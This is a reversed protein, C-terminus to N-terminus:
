SPHLIAGRFRAAFDRTVIWRTQFFQRGFFKRGSENTTSTVDKGTMTHDLTRQRLIRQKTLTCSAGAKSLSAQKQMSFLQTLTAHEIVNM